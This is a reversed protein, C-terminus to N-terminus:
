SKIKRKNKLLSMKNPVRLTGKLLEKEKYPTIIKDPVNRQRSVALIIGVLIFNTVMSSGGYSIFPLCVGTSPILNLAVLVNIFFQAAIVNLAGFAVVKGYINVCDKIIMFARAFFFIYMCIIILGGIFGTEEIITPFIYDNHSEPITFKGIGNGLGKGIIGGTSISVLGYATQLGVGNIYARPNIWAFLRKDRWSVEDKDKKTFESNIKRKIKSVRDDIKSDKSKEIKNEGEELDKKSEPFNFKMYQDVMDQEVENRASAPKKLAYELEQAKELQQSILANESPNEKTYLRHINITYGLIATVLIVVVFLIIKTSYGGYYAMGVTLFAFIFLASMSGVGICIFLVITIYKIFLILYYNNRKNNRWARYRFLSTLDIVLAYGLVIAIKAFEPPQIRFGAISAWRIAGNVEVGFFLMYILLLFSISMVIPTLRKMDRLDLFSVGVCVLFGLGVFFLQQFGDKFSGSANSTYCTDIVFLLGTTVLFMLAVTFWFDAKEWVDRITRIKSKLMKKGYLNPPYYRL